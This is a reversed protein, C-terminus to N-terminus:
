TRVLLKIPISLLLKKNAFKIQILALYIYDQYNHKIRGIQILYILILITKKKNNSIFVNKM